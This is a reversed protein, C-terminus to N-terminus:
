STVTSQAGKTRTVTKASLTDQGVLDMWIRTLITFIALTEHTADPWKFVNLM